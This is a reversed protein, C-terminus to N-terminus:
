AFHLWLIYSTFLLFHLSHLSSCYSICLLALASRRLHLAVTDKSTALDLRHLQREKVYFVLNNLAPSAAFAPRERELKFLLLGGDHGAAFLNQTPQAVITWFREHERKYTYICTRSVPVDCMVRM